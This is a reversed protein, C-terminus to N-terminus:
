SLIEITTNAAEKYLYGKVIHGDEDMLKIDQYRDDDDGGRKTDRTDELCLFISDGTYKHKQNHIDELTYPTDKIRFLQNKKIIPQDNM